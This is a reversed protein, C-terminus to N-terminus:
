RISYEYPFGFRRLAYILNYDLQISVHDTVKVEQVGNQGFQNFIQDNKNEEMEEDIIGQISSTRKSSEKLSTYTRTRSKQSFVGSRSKSLASSNTTQNYVGLDLKENNEHEYKLDYQRIRPEFRIIAEKFKYFTADFKRNKNDFPTELTSNFPCKVLSQDTRNEMYENLTSHLYQLTFNLNGVRAGEAYFGSDKNDPTIYVDKYIFEREINNIEDEKFIQIKNNEQGLVWDHELIDQIKFRRSPNRKLINMVLDKAESSFDNTFKLKATM